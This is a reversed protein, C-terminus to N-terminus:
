WGGPSSPPSDSSRPSSRGSSGETALASLLWRITHCTSYPLSHACLFCTSVPFSDRRCPKTERQGKIEHERHSLLKVVYHTLMKKGTLEINCFRDWRLLVPAATNSCWREPCTWYTIFLDFFTEKRCVPSNYFAIWIHNVRGCNMDSVKNSPTM